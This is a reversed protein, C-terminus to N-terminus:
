NSSTVKVGNQNTMPRAKVNPGKLTKITSKASTNISPAKGIARQGGRSNSQAMALSISPGGASAQRHMSHYYNIEPNQGLEVQKQLKAVM